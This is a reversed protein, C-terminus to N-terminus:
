VKRGAAPNIVTLGQKEAVRNLKADSSVFTVGPGLSVAMAMQLSDVATLYQRSLLQSASEIDAPTANAVVYKRSEIDSSVAAQLLGLQRASVSKDVAHLRHLNSLCELLGMASVYRDAYEEFIASVVPSGVEKLYRKLLASTDIFYTTM